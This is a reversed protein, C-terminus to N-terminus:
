ECRVGRAAAFGRPPPAGRVGGVAALVKCGFSKSADLRAAASLPAPSRGAKLRSVTPSEGYCSASARCAPRQTQRGAARSQSPDRGPGGMAIAGRLPRPGAQPLREAAALQNAGALAAPGAARWSARRAGKRAASLSEAGRVPALRDAARLLV